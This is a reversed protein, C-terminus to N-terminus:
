GNQEWEEYEETRKRAALAELKKKARKRLEKKLTSGKPPFEIIVEQKRSDLFRHMKKTLENLQKDAEKDGLSARVSLDSMMSQWNSYGEGFDEGSYQGQMPVVGSSGKPTVKAEAEAKSQQVQRITNGLVELDEKSNLEGVEIGLEEAVKKMRNVIRDFEVMKWAGELKVNVDVGENGNEEQNEDTM